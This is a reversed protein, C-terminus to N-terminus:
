EAQQVLGFGLKELKNRAAPLMTTAITEIAACPIVIFDDREPQRSLKIDDNSATALLVAGDVLRVEAIPGITGPSAAMAQQLLREFADFEVAEAAIEFADPQDATDAPDDSWWGLEITGRDPLHRLM